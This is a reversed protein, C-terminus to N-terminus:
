ESVGDRGASKARYLAQDARHLLGAVAENDDGSVAVGGSITTQVVCDNLAYRGERVRACILEALARARALSAGPLFICFEDGGFRCAEGHGEVLEGILRGVERITHAGMHHGHTDNIRKVGDLDLMLVALPRRLLAAARVAEELLSDFRHKALLGTLDDTGALQEMRRLYTAETEDVLTFKIVTRGLFVKDGDQLEHPQAVRAGNILTGNTSGLDHLLHKGAASREVLAHRRSIRGDRLQLGHPERGIVAAEDILLHSGLDAPVGDIVILSGKRRTHHFRQLADLDIPITEDPRLTEAMVPVGSAPTTNQEEREVSPDEFSPRHDTM